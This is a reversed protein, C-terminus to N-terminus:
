RNERHNRYSYVNIKYKNKPNLLHNPNRHIKDHCKECVTALWKLHNIEEGKIPKGNEFYSIHHVELKIRSDCCVCSHNDRVLTKIRAQKWSANSQLGKRYNSPRGRQHKLRAM